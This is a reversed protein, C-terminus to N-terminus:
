RPKATISESTSATLLSIFKTGTEVDVDTRFLSLGVIIFLIGRRMEDQAEKITSPFLRHRPFSSLFEMFTYVVRTFALRKRFLHSSPLVLRSRGRSLIIRKCKSADSLGAELKERKRERGKKRARECERTRLWRSIASESASEWVNEARRPMSGLSIPRDANLM